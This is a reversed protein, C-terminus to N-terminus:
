PQITPEAAAFSLNLWPSAPDQLLLHHVRVASTYEEGFEEEDLALARGM